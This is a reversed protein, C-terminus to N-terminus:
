IYPFGLSKSEPNWATSEPNKTLPNQVGSVLRQHSEPNRSSNEPNWLGPNRIGYAGYAYIERIGSEGLRPSIYAQQYAHCMSRSKYQRLLLSKLFKFYKAQTSVRVPLPSDNRLSTTDDNEAPTNAEKYVLLLILVSKPEIKILLFVAAVWFGSPLLHGTLTCQTLRPFAM